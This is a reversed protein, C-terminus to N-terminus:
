QVEAQPGVAWGLRCYPCTGATIMQTVPYSALIEAYGPLPAKPPNPWNQM